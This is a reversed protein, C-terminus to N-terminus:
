FKKGHFNKERIKFLLWWPFSPPPPPPSGSFIASIFITSGWHTEDYRFSQSPAVQLAIYYGHSDTAIIDDLTAGSNAVAYLNVVEGDNPSPNDVWATGNGSWSVIIQAM